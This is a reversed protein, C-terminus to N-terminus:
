NVIKSDSRFQTSPKQANLLYPISQRPRAFTRQRSCPRQRIRCHTAAPFNPDLFCKSDNMRRTNPFRLTTLVRLCRFHNIHKVFPLHREWQLAMSHVCNRCFAGYILLKPFFWCAIRSIFQFRLFIVFESNCCSHREVPIKRHNRFQWESEAWCKRCICVFWAIM